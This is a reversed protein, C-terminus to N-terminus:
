EISNAEAEYGLCDNSRQISLWGWSFTVTSFCMCLLPADLAIAVAYSSILCNMNNGFGAKVRSFVVLKSKIVQSGRISQVIVHKLPVVTKECYSNRFIYIILMDILVVAYFALM